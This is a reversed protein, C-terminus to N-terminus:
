RAQRHGLPADVVQRDRHRNVLEVYVDPSVHDDIAAPDVPIRPADARHVFTSIQDSATTLQDDVRGYLYSHLSNLTILDVAALGLAM